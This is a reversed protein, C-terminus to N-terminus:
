SSFIEHLKEMVSVDPIDATPLNIGMQSVKRSVSSSFAYQEYLPMESLSYFFPRSDIGHEKMEVMYRDRKGDTILACVLWVVRECGELDTQWQLNPLDGLQARYADEIQRRKALIDDIRELQAVGIAAQLNTMRYNFGLVDHWYRKKKNMGHDRLVRMKRDLEPDNTLCMGGEGTTLIKNGFFSYTSINGLSGVRRGQYAAGHAEAADEVVYLKHRSAIAQIAEMDCCQGYVHVPIIAKTRPTIAKEIEAPDITWSDELIDVIVPTAGAHLVANITAAFTLDPVIVEDGPGVGLAMLALHLAATGNSTAVGYQCGVYSSFNQEFLSIYKGSSSIWTSLFADVLYKFENGQLDPSAVQVSFGKRHHFYDVVEGDSNIIPLFRIKENTRAIIEQPSEGLRAYVFDPQCIVSIKENLDKGALLARRIDGDTVVGMLKDQRDVVFVAGLANSNILRLAELVTQDKRCLLKDLM